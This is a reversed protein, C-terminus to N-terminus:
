TPLELGTVNMRQNTTARIFGSGREITLNYNGAILGTVVETLPYRQNVSNQSFVVTQIHSWSPLTPKSTGVPRLRWTIASAEVAATSAYFMDFSINLLVDTGVGGNKTFTGVAVEVGGAPTTADPFYNSFNTAINFAHLLPITAGTLDLSGNIRVAADTLQLVTNFSTAFGFLMKSTNPARFVIDGVSSTNLWAGATSPIAIDLQRSSGSLAIGYGDGDANVLLQGAAHIKATPNAIGLGVNGGAANLSLKWATATGSADYYSQVAPINGGTTGDSITQIQLFRNQLQNGIKALTSNTGTGQASQVELRCAPTGSAGVLLNGSIVNNSGTASIAGTNLGGCALSGSVNAGGSVDLTAVPASLGVGLRANTSDWHLQAPSSLASTSTAGSVLVKNATFSTKGTGGNPVSLIGSSVNNMNLSTLTSGSGTFGTATVEGSVHLATNPETTGIGLRSNTNDWHLNAPTAFATGATGSTLLKNATYTTAGTGGRATALTGSTIDNANHSGSFSGATFSGSIQANGNSNAVVFTSDTTLSPTSVKFSSAPAKVEVAARDASTRVYGAVAGNEEFHIGTLSASSAAGGDNLTVIKNVVDLNTTNVQTVNGGLYINDGSQGINITTQGAGMGINVVEVDTDCAINYERVSGAGMTLKAPITSALVMQQTSSNTYTGSVTINTSTTTFTTPSWLAVYTTGLPPVSGLTTNTALFPIFTFDIRRYQITGEQFTANISSENIKNISVQGTAYNTSLTVRGILAMNIIQTDYVDLFLDLASPNIVPIIVYRNDMIIAGSLFRESAINTKTSNDPAATKIVNDLASANTAAGQFTAFDASSLFGSTVASAQPIQIDNGVKVLPASTTITAQKANFTNFDASSLFGNTSANAQSIQLDNGVKSLPATATITAQKGNLQTQIASTVGSVYGLETSTVSSAAINGSSNSVLARQATLVSIADMQSTSVTHTTLFGSADTVVVKNQGGVGQAMISNLANVQSTTASSAVIGNGGANSVLVRDGTTSISALKGDLQAQINSTVGSLRGLETSTVSSSSVLGSTNAVVVTSPTLTSSVISSAAGTITAQKGDLQTQIGSTVGSLRGLETSTVSSSSVLGSTNSVVVTSPTLTSSIISSAAGTITAQKGDLQTQIASTVGSVYGLETTTVSSSAIKGSANSVLAVNASLDASVVSSAGGTITAQKGNLQTQIASTVGQVYGLETNSVASAVINGTGDSTLAKSTNGANALNALAGLQTATTSSATLAGTGDTAMARNATFTNSVSASSVSSSYVNGQADAALLRDAVFPTRIDSLVFKNLGQVWQNAVTFLPIPATFKTTVYAVERSSSITADAYDARLTPITNNYATITCSANITGGSSGVQDIGILGKSGTAGGGLVETNGELSVSRVGSLATASYFIVFGSSCTLSNDLLLMRVNHGTFSGEFMALRQVFTGVVTSNNCISILGNTFDGTSSQICQTSSHGSFTNNHIITNGTGRSLQIFRHSDATGVFVFSCGTIQIQTNASAIAFENTNLTCNQVINNSATASTFSICSDTSGPGFSEIILSDILVNDVTVEIIRKEAALTGTIKAIGEAGPAVTLRISKNITIAASDAGVALTAAIVAGVRIVDGTASNSIATRLGALDSVDRVTGSYTMPSRLKPKMIRASKQYWEGTAPNAYSDKYIGVASSLIETSTSFSDINDLQAQVNSAVGSLRDLETTTVTSTGLTGGAQTVVARGVAINQELVPLTDYEFEREGGGVNQQLVLKKTKLTPIRIM